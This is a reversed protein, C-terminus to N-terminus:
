QMRESTTNFGGASLLRTLADDPDIHRAAIEEALQQLLETGARERLQEMLRDQAALLLEREAQTQELYVRRNDTNLFGRHREVADVLAQIGEGTTAVTQIIPPIWARKTLALALMTKLYSALRDAGALDAKNVAFVDAIELIGAKIAQIDDGMGPVEVVIVTYANRAIEVESQGAGVTEVIIIDFGAADLVRVANRSARALGGTRERSAMSRIYIGSDGHLEQMRIRDGLIAGGSFPSTPDVALIAVTRGRRRWEQALRTVLTSKGSGPAGTIGVVHARGTHAYLAKILEHGAHRGAEVLTLARAVARRDGQMVRVALSEQQETM